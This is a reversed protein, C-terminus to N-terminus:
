IYNTYLMQLIAVAAYYEASYKAAQLTRSLFPLTFQEVSRGSIHLYCSSIKETILMYQKGTIKGEENITNQQHLSYQRRFLWLILTKM